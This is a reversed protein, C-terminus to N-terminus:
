DQAPPGALTRDIQRIAGLHYALHVVSAVIGTLEFESVNRSQQVAEMWHAAETRLQQQLAAWDEDSVEGRRWSGSYDADTFPNEGSSWRNLLSLGYRLHDVHAAISAGGGHPRASADAASLAELSRLLGPDSPNLVWCADSGSGDVLERLLTSVAARVDNM